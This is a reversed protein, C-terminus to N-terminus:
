SLYEPNRTILTKARSSELSMADIRRGAQPTSSRRMAVGICIATTQLVTLWPGKQKLDGTLL